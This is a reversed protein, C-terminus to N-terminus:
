QLGHVGTVITRQGSNVGVARTVSYSTNLGHRHHSIQVQGFFSDAPLDSRRDLQDHLNGSKIVSSSSDSVQGFDGAHFFVDDAHLVNKDKLFVTNRWVPPDEASKGGRTNTRFKSVLKLGRPNVNWSRPEIM